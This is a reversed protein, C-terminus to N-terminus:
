RQVKDEPYNLRKDTGEKWAMYFLIGNATVVAAVFIIRSVRRALLEDKKFFSPCRCFKKRVTAFFAPFIAFASRKAQSGDVLDAVMTQAPTYTEGLYASVMNTIASCLLCVGGIATPPTFFTFVSFLTYILARLPFRTPNRYAGYVTEYILIGVSIGM